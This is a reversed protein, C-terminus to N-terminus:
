GPAVPAAPAPIIAVAMGAVMQLALKLARVPAAAALSSPVRLVPKPLAPVPVSHLHILLIAAQTRAEAPLPTKVTHQPLLAQKREQIEARLMATTMGLPAPVAQVVVPM